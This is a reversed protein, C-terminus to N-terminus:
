KPALGIGEIGLDYWLRVTHPDYARQHQSCVFLGDRFRGPQFVEDVQFGVMQGEQPLEVKPDVYKRM